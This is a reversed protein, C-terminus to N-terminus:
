KYLIRGKVSAQDCINRLKRYVPADSQASTCQVNGKYLQVIFKDRELRQLACLGWFPLPNKELHDREACQTSSAAKFHRAAAACLQALMHFTYFRHEAACIQRYAIFHIKSWAKELLCFKFSCIFNQFALQLSTSIWIMIVFYLHCM